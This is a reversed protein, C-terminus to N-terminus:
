NEYVKKLFEKFLNNISEKKNRDYEEWTEKDTKRRQNVERAKQEYNHVLEYNFNKGTPMSRYGTVIAVGDVEYLDYNWGYVGSNYATPNEYKLLNQLDCYSIELINNRTYIEKIKKSTTKFKM